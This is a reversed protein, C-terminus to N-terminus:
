SKANRLLQAIENLEAQTATRSLSPNPPYIAIKIKASCRSCQEREMRQITEDRQWPEDFMKSYGVLLRTDAVPNSLHGTDAVRTRAAQWVEMLATQCGSCNLVDERELRLTLNFQAGCGVCIAKECNMIRDVPKPRGQLWSAAINRAQQGRVFELAEVCTPYKHAGKRDRSM